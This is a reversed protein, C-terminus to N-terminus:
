SEVLIKNESLKSDKLQFAILMEYILLNSCLHIQLLTLGHVCSMGNYLTM